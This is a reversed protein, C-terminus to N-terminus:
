RGSWDWGGIAHGGLGSLGRVELMRALLRDVVESGAVAREPLDMVVFGPFVEAEM